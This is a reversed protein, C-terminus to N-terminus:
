ANQKKLFTGAMIPETIRTRCFSIFPGMCFAFVFTAVGLDGGMLFGVAMCIIDTGIRAFKFPIPTKEGITLAQADYPSVGLDATYYMASSISVVLLALVFLVIRITMSPNEGFIGVLVAYCGDVIMGNFFIIIITAFGILHRNLLATILLLIACFSAFVIMYTTHLFNAIGYMLVSFPDVGIQSTKQLAVALGTLLIGAIGMIIRINRQKKDTKM